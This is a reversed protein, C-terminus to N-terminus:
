RDIMMCKQHIKWRIARLISERAIFMNLYMLSSWQKAQAVTYTFNDSRCYSSRMCASVDFSMIDEVQSRLKPNKLLRRLAKDDKIRAIYIVVPVSPDNKDKFVSVVRTHIDTYNIYPFKLRNRRAYREAGQLAPAGESKKSYDLFILIDMAREPREGSVPPYAVNFDLGADVLNLRSKAYLANGSMKYTFNNVNAMFFHKHGLYPKSLIHEVLKRVSNSKIERDSHEYIQRATAAFASGFVGLMFGMSQEPAFNTSRGNVFTRNFAWTPVYANLVPAGIEFPTCEYWHYFQGAPKDADMMSYIPFPWDSTSFNAMQDSIHVRQCAAGFDQLLRNALLAGFLDITGVSQGFIKKLLLSAGIQNMDSMSVHSLGSGIKQFVSQASLSVDREGSTQWLAVAWSSGSVASCYFLADLIGIDQMAQLSGFMGVMARYGGGSSVVAIRPICDDAITMDLLNELTSRIYKKREDLYSKESPHLDNGVRVRAVTAKYKNDRVEPYRMLVAEVARSATRKVKDVMPLLAHWQGANYANLAGEDNSAVYFVSGRMTGINVRPFQSFKEQSISRALFEDALGVLLERDFGWKRGPRMVEGYSNPAIKVADSARRHWLAGKQYYYVAVVVPVDSENYVTVIDAQVCGFLCGVFVLLGYVMQKVGVGKM